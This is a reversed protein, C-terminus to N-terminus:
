LSALLPESCTPAWPRTSARPTTPGRLSTRSAPSTFLFASGAFLSLCSCILSTATLYLVTLSLYLDLSSSLSVIILTFPIMVGGLLQYSITDEKLPYRISEDNCFFGRKFPNHQPTLIFFPLGVTYILVFFTIYKGVHSMLLDDFTSWPFRHTKAVIVCSEAKTVPFM